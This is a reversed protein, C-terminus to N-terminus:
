QAAQELADLVANRLGNSSSTAGSVTDVHVDQAAIIEPILVDNMATIGIYETELENEETIEAIKGGSVTVTATITGFMGPTPASTYTGDKLDTPM